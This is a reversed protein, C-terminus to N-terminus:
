GTKTVVGTSSAPSSTGGTEPAKVGSALVAPIQVGTTLAPLETSPTSAESSVSEPASDVGAKGLDDDEVVAAPATPDEPRPRFDQVNETHLMRVPFIERVGDDVIPNKTPEIPQNELDPNSSM